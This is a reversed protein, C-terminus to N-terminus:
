RTEFFSRRCTILVLWRRLGAATVFGAMCIQEEPRCANDQILVGKRDLRTGPSELKLIDSPRLLTRAIYPLEDHRGHFRSKLLILEQEAQVMLRRAEELMTKTRFKGGSEPGEGQLSSEMLEMKERLEDGVQELEEKRSRDAHMKALAERALLELIFDELSDLTEKPSAAPAIVKHESFTIAQMAVDRSVIDGEITSSYVTKLAANMLLGFCCASGPETEFFKKLDASGGIVSSFENEDMFLAQVLPPNDWYNPEIELPGPINLRLAKLYEIAKGVAPKLAKLYDPVARIGPATRDVLRETAGAIRAEESLDKGSTFAKKFFRLWAFM